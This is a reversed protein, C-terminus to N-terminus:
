NKNNLYSVVIVLCVMSLHLVFPIWRKVPYFFAAGIFASLPVAALIWYDFTHTANIFPIFVAVVLYLLTLNWSKRVQVVQRRMNVQVFYSGAFFAIFVIIIATLAWQSQHFRPYGLQFKPLKYEKSKDTLYLWAFLFYYPTFAGLFTMIWETLSFPRTLLLTFFILILFALSPFYFFTSLGTVVGLNYLMTKPRNSGQLTSMKAWVWILLTNIILPASLVNWEAFLSTVLLYSMAPLYNTRQMYRHENM